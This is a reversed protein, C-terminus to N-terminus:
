VHARGIQTSQYKPSVGWTDTKQPAFSHTGIPRVSRLLPREIVAHLTQSSLSALSAAALVGRCTKLVEAGPEVKASHSRKVSCSTWIPVLALRALASWLWWASTRSHPPSM